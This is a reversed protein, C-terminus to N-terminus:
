RFFKKRENSPVLKKIAIIEDELRKEKDTEYNTLFSSEKEYIGTKSNFSYRELRHVKWDMLLYNFYRENVNLHATTIIRPEIESDKKCPNVVKGNPEFREISDYGLMTVCIDKFYQMLVFKVYREYNENTPDKKETLKEFYVKNVVEVKKNIAKFFDKNQYANKFFIILDKKFVDYENSRNMKSLIDHYFGDLYKLFATYGLDNLGSGDFKFRIGRQIIEGTDELVNGEFIYPYEELFSQLNNINTNKVVFSFFGIFFAALPNGWSVHGGLSEKISNDYDILTGNPSIYGIFPKNTTTEIEKIEDGFYKVAM